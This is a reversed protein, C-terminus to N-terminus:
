TGSFVATGIRVITAGEGIATKYDNTMGMSLERLHLEQAISFLKRFVPRTKEPEVLPAMAMLGTIRVNSFPLQKLTDLLPPLERPAFGSKTGEGGVNVELLIKQVKDIEQATSHIKRILKLSDVSHILDCLEVVAKAKNTQLHGVFHWNVGSVQAYKEELEQCRNEGFDLQGANMLENIKAAPQNKSVAVLKVSDPDRGAMLASQHIEKKVHSLNEALGM